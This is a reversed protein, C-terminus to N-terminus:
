NTKNHTLSRYQIFIMYIALLSSLFDAIPISIWVGTTSFFKPLIILLPILIFVQRSASLIISKYAKGISQFLGISVIQFGGFPAFIFVYKLGKAATNILEKEDTFLSPVVYPFSEVIVTGFLMITSAIIVAKKFVENVRHYLGSGYNYGAIPQMGQNIGFVIMTFLFLMRNVISYAGVETDGGYFSLGKNILIIILCTACHLLFPSLGISFIDKVIEKKLKFFKKQFHTPNIKNKFFLIQWILVIFQSIVTACASGRIGWKFHFIFIYNLVLNILITIITAYMAKSPHGTSRLLANLSMYTNIIISNLLIIIMFDYAYPLSNISAGFFLLLPKLFLLSIVTILLGIIINLIVVNYLIYNTADYDKQGLRISCIAAAGVGILTGFAVQLNMIPLSIALGSLAMSSVGRGIFISDTINYLSMATMATIAPLSYKILLKGINETGLSLISSSIKM